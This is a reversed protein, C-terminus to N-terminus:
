RVETGTGTAAAPGTKGLNGEGAVDPVADGGAEGERSSPSVPQMRPILTLPGTAPRYSSPLQITAPPMRPILVQSGCHRSDPTPCEIPQLSRSVCMWVQLLLLPCCHAVAPLLPCCRARVHRQRPVNVIARM